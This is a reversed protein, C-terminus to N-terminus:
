SSKLQEGKNFISLEAGVNLWYQSELQVTKRLRVFITEKSIDTAVIVESNATANKFVKRHKGTGIQWVLSDNFRTYVIEWTIPFRHDYSVDYVWLADGAAIWSGDNYIVLTGSINRLWAATKVGGRTILTWENSSIYQEKDIKNKKSLQIKIEDIMLSNISDSM